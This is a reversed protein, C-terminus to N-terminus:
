LISLVLYDMDLYLIKLMNVMLHHELCISSHDQKVLVLLLLLFEEVSKVTATQSGINIQNGIDFAGSGSTRKGVAFAKDQSANIHYAFM